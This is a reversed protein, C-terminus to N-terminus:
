AVNRIQIYPRIIVIQQLGAKVQDDTHFQDAHHVIVCRIGYKLYQKKCNGTLNDNVVRRDPAAQNAYTCNCYKKSGAFVEETIKIDCFCGKETCAGFGRGDAFQKSDMNWM